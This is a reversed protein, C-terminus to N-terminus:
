VLHTLSLIVGTHLGEHYLLYEIAEDLNTVEFGYIKPIMSSPTYTNLLIKPLDSQLQNISGIFVEKINEIEQEDILVQPKTEPMYPSFYKDEVTIPLGARVYCLNQVVCILHGLNWIINNNHSSPIENLQGGNLDKIQELLFRRFGLIKEINKNM